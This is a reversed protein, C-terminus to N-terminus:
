GVLARGAEALRNVITADILEDAFRISIGGLVTSDIELNLRVPQGIKSTLTKELAERQSATLAIASRVLAIVRNRRAATAASYFAIAGEINRGRLGTVLHGLLGATSASIKTGFLDKVLSRKAENSYKSASLSQRLEPDSLVIKSFTFLEDELRDLEGAINAASAAAEVALQEIADSLDSPASWRLAALDSILGASKASIKGGFLDGVLAAKAKGERSSDTMARKLATSSDLAAVVSFLDEAVQNAEGVSAGKLAADLQTRATALSQRSSGGLDTLAHTSM